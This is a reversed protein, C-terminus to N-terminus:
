YISISKSFLSVKSGNKVNAELSKFINQLETVLLESIIELIAMDNDQTFSGCYETKIQITQFEKTNKLNGEM